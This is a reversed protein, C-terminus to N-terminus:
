RQLEVVQTGGMQQPDVLDLLARRSGEAGPHLWEGWGLGRLFTAQDTWRHLRFGTEEAARVLGTFDVGATLDLEGPRALPDSELGQAAFARLRASPPAEPSYLQEAPGGYDLTLFAGRVLRSAVQGVWAEVQTRVPLPRGEPLSLGELSSGLDPSTPDAELWRLGPDGEAVFLERLRDGRRLLLHCPFADVLENSLFVGEFPPLEQLSRVWGTEQPVGALTERQRQEWEPFPEVLLYRAAGVPLGELLSRALRGSGAGMEVVTVPRPLDLSEARQEVWRALLRGFAPHHEPATVFDGSPGLPNEPRRYFGLGPTYLAAEMFAAFPLPGEARIRDQLLRELPNPGAATPFRDARGAGASGPWSPPDNPDM